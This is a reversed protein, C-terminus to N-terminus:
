WRAKNKCETFKIKASEFAFVIRWYRTFYKKTKKASSLYIANTPSGLPLRIGFDELTCKCQNPKWLFISEMLIKIPLYNINLALIFFMSGITLNLGGMPMNKTYIILHGGFIKLQLYLKWNCHYNIVKLNLCNEKLITKSNPSFYM